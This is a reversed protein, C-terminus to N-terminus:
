GVSPVGGLLREITALMEGLDFPAEVLVCGRAAVTAAHERSWALDATIVVVPIRGTGEGGRVDEVLAWAAARRYASIDLIALALAPALAQLRGLSADDALICASAYGAGGLFEAMLDLFVPDHNVVAILPNGHPIM